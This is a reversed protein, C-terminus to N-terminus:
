VCDDYSIFEIKRGNVGGQDNIMKFYADESKAVFGNSSLPGSNPPLIALNQNDTDSAGTDYRIEGAHTTSPAAISLGAFITLTIRWCAYRPAREYQSV